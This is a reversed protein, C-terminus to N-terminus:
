VLTQEWESGTLNNFINEKLWHYNNQRTSAILKHKNEQHLLHMKALNVTLPEPKKYWSKTDIGWSTALQAWMYDPFLSYGSVANTMTNRPDIYKSYILDIHDDRSHLTRLDNWFESDTRNSLSYHVKIFDAIDDISYGLKDNLTQFNWQGTTNKITIAHSLQGICNIIIYLANAEMPEVFGSSLGVAVLNQDAMKSLRSPIWKILRPERRLNKVMLRYQDLAKQESLHSSSFCYGTGMRHYLGIKFLWGHSQAISQTYNVMETAQDDYDLQCVWARDVANDKYLKEPWGLAKVLVKSGGSADVFLDGSISEGNDFVLKKIGNSDTVVNIIKQKIHKAGKPIAIHDRIYVSALDANIHQSWSYTPNLLYQDNEFPAVNREMYHFQSNFYQDFKNITRDNYLELLLDTTKNKTDATLIWDDM